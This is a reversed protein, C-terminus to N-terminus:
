SNRIIEHCSAQSVLTGVPMRMAHVGNKLQEILNEQNCRDNALFVITVGKSYRMSVEGQGGRM